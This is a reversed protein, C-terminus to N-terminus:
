SITIIDALPQGTRPAAEEAKQVKGAERIDMDPLITYPLANATRSSKTWTEPSRLEGKCRYLCIHTLEDSEDVVASLVEENTICFTRTIAAVQEM